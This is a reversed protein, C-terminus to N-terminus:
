RFKAKIESVIKIACKKIMDKMKINLQESETYKWLPIVKDKIEEVNVYRRVHQNKQRKRHSSPDDEATTGDLASSHKRKRDEETAAALKATVKKGRQNLINSQNIYDIFPQVMDQHQLTITMWDNKPPKKIKDYHVDPLDKLWEDVLKTAAKANHFKMMNLVMVKRNSFDWPKAPSNQEARNNPATTIESSGVSEDVIEFKVADDSGQQEATGVIEKTPFESTVIAEDEVEMEDLLKADGSNRHLLM